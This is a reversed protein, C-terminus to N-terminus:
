AHLIEAVMEKLVDGYSASSNFGYAKQSTTYIIQLVKETQSVNYVGVASKFDKIAWPSVGMKQAADKDPLNRVYHFAHLKSFSNYLGALVLPMAADKPRSIFYQIINIAHVANRNMLAKPLEFVNYDKSIGIYKEVLTTTLTDALPDNLRVKEIENVIKQLDSGLSNALVSAVDPAISIKVETGYNRIWDALQYDKVPESTYMVSGPAKACNKTFSLRADLKKYKHAIILVTTPMLQQIYVDLKALDKMSQAERVIVLQKEAFMPFRRCASVVASWEADKGYFVSLNFDKEQPQLLFEEAADCIKDIYYPELGDLIYLPQAKGKKFDNIIQTHTQQAM